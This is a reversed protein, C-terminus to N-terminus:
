GGGQPWHYTQLHVHSGPDSVTDGPHRQLPGVPRKSEAHGCGTHTDRNSYLPEQCLIGAQGLSAARKQPDPGARAMFSTWRRWGEGAELCLQTEGRVGGVGPKLWLQHGALWDGAHVKRGLEPRSRCVAEGPHKKPGVAWKAEGPGCHQLTSPREWPAQEEEWCGGGDMRGAGLEWGGIMMM